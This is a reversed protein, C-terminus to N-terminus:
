QLNSEALLFLFWSLRNLYDLFPKDLEKEQHLKIVQREAERTIVRAYNLIAEQENRGPLVFEKPLNVKQEYVKIKDELWKLESKVEIDGCGSLISSFKMLDQQIQTLLKKQRNDADVKALGLAASLKDLSGLVDFIPEAKSLKKGSFDTTIM